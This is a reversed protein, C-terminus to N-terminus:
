QRCAGFYWCCKEDSLEGLLPLGSTDRRADRRRKRVILSTILYGGIVFFVDVGVFGGSFGRFGAHSLIVPVVALARLGDVERRCKMPEPENSLRGSEEGEGSRNAGGYM